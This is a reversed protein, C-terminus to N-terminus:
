RQGGRSSFYCFSQLGVAALMVLLYLEFYLM